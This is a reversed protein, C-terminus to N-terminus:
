LSNYNRGHRRHAGRRTAHATGAAAREGTPTGARRRLWPPTGAPAPTWHTTTPKETSQPYASPVRPRATTSRVALVGEPRVERVLGRSRDDGGHLLEAMCRQVAARPDFDYCTIRRRTMEPTDDFAALSLRGPVQVGCAKLLDFCLVASEANSLVWATIESDHLLDRVAEVLRNVQPIGRKFYWNLRTRLTGFFEGQFRDAAEAAFGVGIGTLRGALLPLLARETLREARAPVGAGDGETDDWTMQQVVAGADGCADRLGALRPASWGEGFRPCVYAIRRHGLGLLYDAITRGARYGDVTRVVAVDGHLQPWSMPGSQESLIAIRVQAHRRVAAVVEPVLPEIGTAYILVGLVTNRSVAERWDIEDVLATGSFRLTRTFLRVGFQACARDIASLYAAGRPPFAIPVNEQTARGVLLIGGSSRGQRMLVPVYRRRQHLLVERETLRRLACRCTAFSVGFRNCLEKLPPLPSGVPFRGELIGRYLQRTVEEARTRYRGPTGNTGATGPDAHEPRASIPRVRARRGSHLEILGERALQHLAHLMTVHSVGAERAMVSAGPLCPDDGYAARDACRRAVRLADNFAPKARM